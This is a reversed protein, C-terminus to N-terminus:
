QFKNLRTKITNIIESKPEKMVDSKIIVELANIVLDLMLAERHDADKTESTLAVSKKNTFLDEENTLDEQSLGFLKCIKVIEKFTFDMLGNERRSYQSQNLGLEVAINEQSLENIKRLQRIKINIKKM